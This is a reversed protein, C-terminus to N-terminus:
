PLIIVHRNNTNTNYKHNKQQKNEMFASKSTSETQFIWFGGIQNPLPTIMLQIHELTQRLLPKHYRYYKMFGSPFYQDVALVWYGVIFRLFLTVIWPQKKLTHHVNHM